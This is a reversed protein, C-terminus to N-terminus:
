LKVAVSGSDGGLSMFTTIFQNKFVATGIGPIGVRLIANVNTIQGTTRETTRGTKQVEMGILPAVSCDNGALRVDLLNLVTDIPSYFSQTASDGGWLLGVAPNAKSPAPVGNLPTDDIASPDTPTALAADVANSGQAEPIIPIYRSLKAITNAPAVGGDAPGPYVIPSGLPATNNAALVHNNSLIRKSGDSNAYVVAGFTGATISIEGISTGPHAPRVNSINAHQYFPGSAPIIDTLVDQGSVSLKGPIMVSSPLTARSVKQAVFLTVAYDGTSKGGVQKLGVAVGLVNPDKMLSDGYLNVARVALNLPTTPAAM